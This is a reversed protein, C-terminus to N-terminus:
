KSYHMNMYQRLLTELEDKKQEVDDLVPPMWPYGDITTVILDSRVQQAQSTNPLNAGSSRLLKIYEYLNRQIEDVQDSYVDIFRREQTGAHYAM